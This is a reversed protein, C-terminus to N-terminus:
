NARTRKIVLENATQERKLGTKPRQHIEDVAKTGSEFVTQRIATGPRNENTNYSIDFIVTKADDELTDIGCYKAESMVHILTSFRHYIMCVFQIFLLIGFMLTFLISLPEISINKGENGCELNLVLSTEFADVSTIAFVGVVLFTNTLFIFLVSINRLKLLDNLQEMKEKQNYNFPFLYTKLLVEWFEKEDNGIDKAAQLKWSVSIENDIVSFLILM